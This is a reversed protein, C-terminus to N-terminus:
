GLGRLDIKGTVAASIFATRYEKLCDIAVRIKEMMVDFSGIKCNLHKLIQRQEEISPAMVFLKELDGMSINARSEGNDEPLDSLHNSIM